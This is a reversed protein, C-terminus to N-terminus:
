KPQQLSPYGGTGREYQKRAREAGAAFRDEGGTPTPPKGGPDSNPAKGKATVPAKAGFLAPFQTKLTTVDALVEEYSAGVPVAVMRRLRKAAEVDEPKDGPVFGATLLAREVRTEHVEAAAMAKAEAAATKEAEAAEKAREADTKAADDRERQATIIAKAEDVTCGLEQAIAAAAARRGEEKERTAIANVETQSLLKEGPQPMQSPPTATPQNVPPASSQQEPSPQSM